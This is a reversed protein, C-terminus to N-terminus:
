LIYEEPLILTEARERGMMDDGRDATIYGWWQDKYGALYLLPKKIHLIYGLEDLYLGNRMDGKM